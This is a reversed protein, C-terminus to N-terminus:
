NESCSDSKVQNANAGNGVLREYHEKDISTDCDFYFHTGSTANLFLKGGVVKPNVSTFIMVKPETTHQDFRAQFTVTHGYFLSVCVHVGGELRLTVMVRQSGDLGDTITSRITNLEGFIDPLEKNTNALTLFQKHSRFRFWEDTNKEEFFTGESFRISVPTDSLRFKPNSRGVDFGNLSYVSGESLRKQFTDSAARTSSGTSSHLSRRMFFLSNM